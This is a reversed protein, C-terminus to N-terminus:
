LPGDLQDRKKQRDHGIEEAWGCIVRAGSMGKSVHGSPELIALALRAFPSSHLDTM